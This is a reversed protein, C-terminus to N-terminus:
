RAPQSKTSETPKTRLPPGADQRYVLVRDHAILVLDARGDGDVDGVALDRPESGGGGGRFSKSEFVKFSLSRVLEAQGAYSVLEVLHDETDILALDPHDDANLDGVILDALHADSRNTEYSAITRLRQGTRGTLVVGFRDTGAILLDDRGDGDLDAVHMGQFDIAGVSLAGAPRYVSEKEELYLLSKRSRDLLLIEKKGDGDTDLAAVGVVQSNGRGTNYQDKVEWTGSGDLRINRAFTNQAVLMAPGGVDAITLGSPGVGALPGLGGGAPAPPEGGVRGLLLTPPGFSNFLLFDVPGDQNADVIRLGVPSDSVGKLLVSDDQGWRYPVFKGSKERQLARLTFEPNAGAIARRSVYVVEPDGNRDLDAVELAVPEGSVPLPSPFTLRGNSLVSRGVQKEQESLVIVEARRDGDFDALKVTKGGVLSPFSEYSGLGVREAQRFVLFQANSPDTVVVDARGDGDLDGVAIARGRQNGPPLPYFNLRGRAQTENADTEVLTLVKVRGSQEEILVLENGPRTDIPAFTLARPAEVHFRQEPGPRGGAASFRIRVPDDNGADLIIIDDGGDGDLDTARLMGPSGASHPIRDPESLRGNESQLVIVVENAALLALDDRRDRNLDAVVLATASEVAEGTNVRRVDAGDFRGKGDSHLVVLEAPTGYFALDPKGDHNFDGSVLSVVEKNVPVSVLRMRRDSEIQNVDSRLLVPVADALPDAKRSLLIDIRSRANNSVVIDDIKDGDLDRVLLAGIRTDLKYIELPKFGFYDALKPDNDDAAAVRAVLLLLATLHFVRGRAPLM